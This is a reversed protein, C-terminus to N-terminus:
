RVVLVSCPAHSVLASSVSGLVLKKFGSLGRTGVVILQVKWEEAYDAISEVVSPVNEIIEGRVKVGSGEAKSVVDQVVTEADTRAKDFFEKMAPTTTGAQNTAAYVPVPIVNLVFLSSGDKKALDIAWQAARMSNQSGDVAVLIRDYTAM